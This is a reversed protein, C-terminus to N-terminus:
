GNALRDKLQQTRIPFDEDLLKKMEAEKELVLDAKNSLEKLVKQDRGFM